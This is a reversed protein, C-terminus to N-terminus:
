GTLRAQRPEALPLWRPRVPPGLVYDRESKARSGRAFARRLRAALAAGDDEGDDWYGRVVELGCDRLQDERRKERWVVGKDRTRGPEADADADYKVRGDAELVTRHEDWVFDVEAIFMGERTRVSRQQQAPPLGNDRCWLRARSELATESDESAFAVLERAQVIGPWGACDELVRHIAARDLGAWLASELTVLGAAVTLTRACDVVTRAPTTLVRSRHHRPVSAVARGRVNVVEGDRCLTLTPVKPWLDLLAMEYYIAASQHSLVLDGRLALLAAAASLLHMARDSRAGKADYPRATYIGHRVRRWVGQRLLRDIEVESHGAAIAQARWFVGRQRSATAALEPKMRGSHPRRQAATSPAM